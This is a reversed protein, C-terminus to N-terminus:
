QINNLFCAQPGLKEEIRLLQNYKATRDTRTVSGTKIQGANLAVAFDAIATDETEGSRHSIITKYGNSKALQVVALTESITGVQNMKILIANAIQQKTGKQLRDLQTVFLDDGVLQIKDGLKSTLVRWGQWDDEAMADEISCIPYSNVWKELLNMWAEPSFTGGRSWKFHYQQTAADYLESSAIDLAISIDVGPQYGAQEIAEMILTIAEENSNLNPAYGGENGVNTNYGKEKLISGLHHFIEVCRRLAESFTPGKMPVVMFEQIDLVNDAHAGGNIINVMPTPLLSAQMGGLYFYLPLHLENAAAKAVALSTALISNAGLKSRNPTSDLDILIHDIVCQDFISLGRLAPQITHIVHNMAKTVGRGLYRSQDLDRLEHAEHSGVSAGAPVAARGCCGSETFVEVELTPNGRADLIQRAKMHEIKAM